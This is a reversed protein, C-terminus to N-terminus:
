KGIKAKKKTEQKPNWKLLYEFLDEGEDYIWDFKIEFTDIIKEFQLAVKNPVLDVDKIGPFKKLERAIRRSYSYFIKKQDENELSNKLYDLVKRVKLLIYDAVLPSGLSGQEVLSEEFFIETM